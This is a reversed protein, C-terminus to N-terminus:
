VQLSVPSLAFAAVAAATTTHDRTDRHTAGFTQGLQRQSLLTWETLMFCFSQLVVGGALSKLRTNM